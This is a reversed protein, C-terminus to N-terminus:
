YVKIIRTEKGRPSCDVKDRVEGAKWVATIEAANGILV